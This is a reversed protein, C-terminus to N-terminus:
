FVAQIKAYRLIINKLFEQFSKLKPFKLLENNLIRKQITKDNTKLVFEHTAEDPLAINRKIIINELEMDNIINWVQENENQLIFFQKEFNIIDKHINKILILGNENILVNWEGYPNPFYRGGSSYFFSITSDM